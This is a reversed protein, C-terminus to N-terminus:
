MSGHLPGGVRFPCLPTPHNLRPNVSPPCDNCTSHTPLTHIQKGNDAQMYQCGDTAKHDKLGCLSCYNLSGNNYNKSNRQNGRYNSKYNGRANGSYGRPKWNGRNNNQYGGTAPAKDRYGQNPKNGQHESQVEKVNGQYSTYTNVKGKNGKARPIYKSGYRPKDKVEMERGGRKIDEDIQHRYINLARTLESFECARGMKASLLHFNNQAITASSAPLARILAMIAENNFCVSQAPGPPLNSCARTALSMIKGEIKSLNQQKEARVNQLQIRAEQPSIRRDFYIILNHFLNDVSNGQNLWDAILLHAQGTTCDLLMDKFEAESLRCIDQARKMNSLFEIISQDFHGSFKPTRTPFTRLCEARQSPTFIVQNPAFYGPPKFDMNLLHGNLEKNLISSEIKAANNCLQLNVMEKELQSNEYFERCLSKLSRSTEKLGTKEAMHLNDAYMDMLIRGLPNSQTFTLQMREVDSLPQLGENYMAEFQSSRQETRDPVSSTSQNRSRFMGGLISSPRSPRRPVDEVNIEPEVHAEAM